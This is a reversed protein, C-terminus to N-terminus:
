LKENLPVILFLCFKSLNPFNTKLNHYYNAKWRLITSKQKQLWLRRGGWSWRTRLCLRARRHHAMLLWSWNISLRNTKCWIHHIWDWHAWAHLYTMSNSARQEDQNSTNSVLCETPTCHNSATFTYCFYKFLFPM